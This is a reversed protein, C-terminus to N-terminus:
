QWSLFHFLSLQVKGCIRQKWSFLTITHPSAPVLRRWPGLLNKECTPFKLKLISLYYSKEHCWVHICIAILGWSSYIQYLCFATKHTTNFIDTAESLESGSLTVFQNSRNTGLISFEDVWCILDLRSFGVWVSHGPWTALTSLAMNELLFYLLTLGTHLYLTNPPPHDGYLPIREAVLQPNRAQCAVVSEALCFSAHCFHSNQNPFRINQLLLAQFMWIHDKHNLFSSAISFLCFAHSSLWMLDLYTHLDWEQSYM